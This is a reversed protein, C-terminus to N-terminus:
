IKFNKDDERLWFKFISLNNEKPLLMDGLFSFNVKISIGTVFM